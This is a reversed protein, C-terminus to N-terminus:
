PLVSADIHPRPWVPHLRTCKNLKSHDIAFEFAARGVSEKQDFGELHVNKKMKKTLKPVIRLSITAFTDLFISETRENLVSM